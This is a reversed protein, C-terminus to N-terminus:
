GGEFRFPMIVWIATPHGSPDLGPSFGCSQIAQWIADAIRKDPVDTLPTFKSPQGDKGIAFKVTVSDVLGRLERPMRVARQVCGKERQAPRVYGSTAMVPADEIENSPPAGVVGGVVGEGTSPGYNYEPEKASKDEKMEEQVEKPQILAQPPPPPPLKMDSPPKPANPKSKPRPPAPPPPPPPPTPPAARVFKVDVVKDEVAQKIQQGAIVAAAVVGVQFATSGFVFGARRAANKGGERKTVEDFV